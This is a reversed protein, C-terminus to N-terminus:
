QVTILQKLAELALDVEEATNWWGFSFRITGTPFTGLTQHASPACHLGVRTMIGYSDDLRFAIESPDTSVPQISVVGTRQSLDTRGAVRLKELGPDLSKLGDLFRGTLALEHERVADIGTERLWALGANLGIIGPINLTGAEFRDPMFDPISETHSISGTGGCILPEVLPVMSSKLLFGGVGQPGLLGKHGTFALADINMDNMDIPWVGATQASDVIFKLHHSRCFEGVERLPLLTGCVNSAHTMVIARTAPTLYRPLEEPDLTGDARCEVRSFTVGGKSLQTLPRMVANHEMSSVIVHDGPKLFGKLIVNLSETVNRTFIVNRCDEGGFMRCLLERTEYIIEETKYASEYCGRSINSGIQTMFHYMADPVAQPKPFTTSANDFYIRKM